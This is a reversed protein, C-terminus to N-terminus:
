KGSTFAPPLYYRNAYEVRLSLYWDNLTRFKGVQNLDSNLCYLSDDDKRFVSVYLGEHFVYFDSDIGKGWFWESRPLVLDDEDAGSPQLITESEFLEGGGKNSWLDKLDDPVSILQVREWEQIETLSLGGRWAFLDPRQISDRIILDIM